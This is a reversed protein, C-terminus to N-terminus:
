VAEFVHWVFPPDQVTGVYEGCTEVSAGTAYVVFMRNDSNQRVDILAWLCIMGDQMAVHLVKAGIPLGPNQPAHHLELPYKFVRLYSTTV